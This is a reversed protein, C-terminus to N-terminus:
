TAPMPARGARRLGADALVCLVALGALGACVVLAARVGVVQVLVGAAVGSVLAGVAIANAFLATAAAVRPALLRQLLEIGLIGMAAIGIGRLLQLAVVWGVDPAARMGVFYLVFAGAAAALGITPRIRGAAASLALAVVVEIAACVGFVAGVWGSSAGLVRTIQLPLVFSGIFMATHFLVVAAVPLAVSSGARPTPDTGLSAPAEPRPLVRVGLAALALLAAGVAFLAPYGLTLEVASALVPGVAWAISWAGRLLATAGATEGRRSLRELAFVQPFGTNVAGALVCVVLLPVFGRVVTFGAFGLAAASLGVALPVRTGRRDVLRAAVVGAVIGSLTLLSTAVGVQVPDLRLEDAAFLVLYSATIADALGIAMLVAVFPVARADPLARM